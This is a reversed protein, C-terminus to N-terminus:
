QLAEAGVGDRVLALQVQEPAYAVPEANETPVPPSMARREEATFLVLEPNDGEATHEQAMAAAVPGIAGSAMLIAFVKKSHVDDRSPAARHSAMAERKLRQPEYDMLAKASLGLRDLYGDLRRELLERRREDRQTLNAKAAIWDLEADIKGATKTLRRMAAPVAGQEDRIPV